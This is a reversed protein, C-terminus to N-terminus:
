SSCGVYGLHGPTQALGWRLPSAVAGVDTCLGSIVPGLRSPEGASLIQWGRALCLPVMTDWIM